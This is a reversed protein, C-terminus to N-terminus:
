HTKIFRALSVCVTADNLKDNTVVLHIHEGIDTTGLLFKQLNNHPRPFLMM